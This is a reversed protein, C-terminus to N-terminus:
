RSEKNFNVIIYGVRAGNFILYGLNFLPILSCVLEVFLCMLYVSKPEYYASNRKKSFYVFLVIYKIFLLLVNLKLVIEYYTVFGM